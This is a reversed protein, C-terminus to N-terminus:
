GRGAVHDGSNFVRVARGAKRPLNVPLALLQFPDLLYFHRSVVLIIVWDPFVFLKAFHIPHFAEHSKQMKRKCVLLQM